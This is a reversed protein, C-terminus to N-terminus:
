SISYETLPIADKFLMTEYSSAKNVISSRIRIHGWSPIVDYIVKGQTASEATERVVRNSWRHRRRRPPPSTIYAEPTLKILRQADEMTPLSKDGLSFPTLIAIPHQTLLESWIRPEHANESGHHPVKFISAVGSVVVSNNLVVAWGTSPDPSSELDSGLLISHSGIEIWLVVSTQNPTPTSIVKRREGNTPLLHGLNARLICSDSPSLSSIRVKTVAGSLQLPSSYLVKNAIALTPSKILTGTEKREKLISFIENFEDVGSRKPFTGSRYLGILQQLEESRFIGPIVFAANECERCITSIGRIHDDHWHTAVVLEVVKSVDLGLEKLYELSSPKGTDREPCSDILVWLSNGIHVAMAEGYGSGFLSIELEDPSPSQIKNNLM